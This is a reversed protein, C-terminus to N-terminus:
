TGAGDVLGLASRDKRSITFVGIGFKGALGDWDIGAKLPNITLELEPNYVSDCLYAVTSTQVALFAHGIGYELLLGLHNEESLDFAEWEGFSESDRRLDIVVDIIRGKSVTVFKAQGPPGKRYHIGRLVGSVSVSSNVQEVKFDFGTEILARDRRFFEFFIGREDEHVEPKFLWVGDIKTKEYPLLVGFTEGGSYM